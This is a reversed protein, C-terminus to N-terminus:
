RYRRAVGVLDAGIKSRKAVSPGEDAENSQGQREVGESWPARALTPPEAPGDRRPKM